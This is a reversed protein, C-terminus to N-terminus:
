GFKIAFVPDTLSLAFNDCHGDANAILITGMALTEYLARGIDM